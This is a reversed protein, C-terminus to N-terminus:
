RSRKGIILTAQKLIDVEMMLQKNQVELEAIRKQDNSLEIEPKSVNTPNRYEKIWRDFTSPNLTYEYLVDKRPKGSEVLRIIQQKFEPSYTTRKKPM